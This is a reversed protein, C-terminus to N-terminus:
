ELVLVSAFLVSFFTTFANLNNHVNEAEQVLTRHFFLFISQPPYFIPLTPGLDRKGGMAKAM